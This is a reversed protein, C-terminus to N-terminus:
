GQKLYPRSEGSEAAQFQDPTVYDSYFGDAGWTSVVMDLVRNVTHLYILCGYSHLLRSNEGSLQSFRSLDMTVVRIGNSQCFAGIAAYDPRAIQYLTFIFNAVPTEERVWDLMEERYIQVIIRDWLSPDSTREVAQALAKCQSRIAAENTDKSDTVLCADPHSVLLELLGDIDLPTYYYCIPTNMFTEHDMVGAYEQELNYYSIQDWDHRAVLVGDSTLQLDVEFIRQGAEYSALFADKSNTERRGDVTGLAHAVIPITTWDRLPAPETEAAPPSTEASVAPDSGRGSSASVASADSGGSFASAACGGLASLGLSLALVMGAARKLIGTKM